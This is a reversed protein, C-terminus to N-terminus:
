KDPDDAANNKVRIGHTLVAVVKSALAAFLMFFGLEAIHLPDAVYLSFKPPFLFYAALVASMFSALFAFTSGYAVAILTTPLLYALVLHQAELYRDVSLLVITTLIVAAISVVTPVIYPRSSGPVLVESALDRSTKLFGAIM